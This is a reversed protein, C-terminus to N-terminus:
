LQTLLTRRVMLTSNGTEQVEKVVRIKKEAPQYKKTM